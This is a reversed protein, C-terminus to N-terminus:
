SPSQFNEGGLGAKLQVSCVSDVILLSLESLMVPFSPGIGEFGLMEGIGDVFRM